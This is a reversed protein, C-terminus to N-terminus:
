PAIKLITLPHASSFYVCRLARSICLFQFIRLTFETCPMEATFLHCRFIYTTERTFVNDADDDVVVNDDENFHIDLKWKKREGVAARMRGFNAISISNKKKSYEDRFQILITVLFQNAIHRSGYAESMM